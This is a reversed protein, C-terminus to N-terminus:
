VIKTVSIRLGKLRKKNIFIKSYDNYRIFKMIILTQKNLANRYYLTISEAIQYWKHLKFFTFFVWPLTNSKTFGAVTSFNGSRWPHKERKKFLVFPVLGLLVGCICILHVDNFLHMLFRPRSTGFEFGWQSMLNSHTTM